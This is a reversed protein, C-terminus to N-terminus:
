LYTPTGLHHLPNNALCNPGTLPASTRVREGVGFHLALNKYKANNKKKSFIYLSTLYSM